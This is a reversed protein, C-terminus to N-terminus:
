EQRSFRGNRRCIRDNGPWGFLPCGPPRDVPRAPWPTRTCRELRRPARKRAVDASHIFLLRSRAAPSIRASTRFCIPGAFTRFVERVHETQDREDRPRNELGRVCPLAGRLTARQLENRLRNPFSDGVPLRETDIVALPLDVKAAIAALLSTRGFGPRGRIVIRPLRETPEVLSLVIDRKIQAPVVLEEFSRDQPHLGTVGGPGDNTSLEGSLRRLLVSDVALAAFLRESTGVSSARLLGNALLPQASDLEHAVVARAEPDNASLITEVLARIAFRDHRTTPSFAMSDRRKAGCRPAGGRGHHDARSNDLSGFQRSIDHLALGGGAALTARTRSAVSEAIREVADNAQTLLQPAANPGTGM